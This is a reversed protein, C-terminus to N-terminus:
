RSLYEAQALAIGIGISMEGESGLRAEATVARGCLQEPELGLAAIAQVRPCPRGAQPAGSDLLKLRQRHQLQGPGLLEERPDARGFRYDVWAVATDPILYESAISDDDGGPALPPFTVRGGSLPGFPTDLPLRLLTQRGTVEKYGGGCQWM